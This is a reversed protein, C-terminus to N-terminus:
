TVIQAMLVFPPPPKFAFVYFQESRFPTYPDFSLQAVANATLAYNWIMVASINGSFFNAQTGVPSQRCGFQLPAVPAAYVSGTGNTQSSILVGDVYLIGSIHSALTNDLTFVGVIDHYNGDDYNNGSAIDVPFSGDTAKVFMEANGGTNMALAWGQPNVGANASVAVVIGGSGGSAMKARAFVTFPIGIGSTGAFGYDTQTSAPFDVRQSSAGVFNLTMGDVGGSWTPANILTGVDLPHIESYENLTSPGSAGTATTETFLWAGVLGQSFIDGRHFRPMTPKAFPSLIATM